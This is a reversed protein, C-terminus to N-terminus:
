CVRFKKMQGNPKTLHVACALCPDFSRVIRVINLPNDVDPVPCGILAQELPGRQLDADRPSCNWTTPVVAQYNAIKKNEIRIWHGLAGRPAETMGAGESSVPLEFPEFVPEQPKLQLVWKEMAEAIKKTELARSVHRDLFSAGKRYDGSIWMRALPGVEHPINDYRPAKVWSYAGAKGMEPDTKGRSPHRPTEEKYWAHSVDETIKEANIDLDIESTYRGPKFLFGSRKDDQAFVGYSLFNKYGVGLGAYDKYADAVALVDPIYVNNIFEKLQRIRWLTSAIRDVSVKQSVGGPTISQAMPVKGSWLATLEQAKLRMDLAQVYHEVVSDNLQKSVRYDGAYRPIFPALDPGIVYDLAALHYFHLIHSQIYNGGLILNRVIRGNSPPMVNFAAELTLAAAIAHSISCVGCIRQTIMQADRPDRGKLIVEFGRWLTGISRADVVKKDEVDVEIKLHGEIRTIPDISITQKAM